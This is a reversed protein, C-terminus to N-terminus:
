GRMLMHPCSNRHLPTLSHHHEWGHRILQSHRYQVSARLFVIVQLLLVDVAFVVDLSNGPAELALMRERPNLSPSTPSIDVFATPNKLGHEIFQGTLEFVDTNPDADAKAELARYVDMGKRGLDHIDSEFDTDSLDSGLLEDELRVRSCVM